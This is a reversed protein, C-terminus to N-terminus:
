GSWSPWGPPMSQNPTAQFWGSPAGLGVLLQDVNRGDITSWGGPDGCPCQHGDAIGLAEPGPGAAWGIEVWPYGQYLTAVQQGARVRQGVRVTVTIHEAMYMYKGAFPGDLLRIVVIGGGPWCSIAWCSSPGSDTDTAMTVVGDGLALLPGSGDYDVGLDVRRPTLGSVERVPNLYQFVFYRVTKRARGGSKDVATVVFRETGLRGTRVPRGGAATGKCSAIASAIGGEDCRFRAVIREGLQYWARRSPSTITITPIAFEYAGIDCAKGEPRRVGRQDVPPCGAHRRPVRDTAASGAGVAVTWTPGGNDRLPGLKPNGYRGPCTRDGYRLDHGASVIASRNSGACGSGVSSAVITDQVQMDDTATASDVYLGGGTGAPGPSGATTGGDGVADDAVTVSRLTAPSAVAAIAGGDGGGGGSGTVGGGRGGAGALNGVLTSNTVSLRGAATFIGGGWSGQGGSGDGGPTGVGAGAPGGSGGAGGRNAYITSGAISLRGQNYIGGGSGGAGGAGGGGGTGLAGAGGGGGSGGDGAVNGRITSAAVTLTGRNYLGGGSGGQGGSGGACGSGASQGGGVGAAGGSGAHNGVVAVRDLLLTGSNFIGGGEDAPGANEGPAGAGNAACSADALGPAGPKADPARGGAVRLSRLTLNAGNAVSLARDGLRSADIVTRGPGAGVITLPATAPLNLDGSTDGDAGAPAISLLYREARLVITNPARGATGCDTRRGPADVAAIAERLSCRRDHTALEDKTTNVRLTAAAAPGASAFPVCALAGLVLTRPDPKVRRM